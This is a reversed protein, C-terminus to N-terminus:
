GDGLRFLVIFLSTYGDFYVIECSVFNEDKQVEFYFTSLDQIKLPLASNKCHISPSRFIRIVLM